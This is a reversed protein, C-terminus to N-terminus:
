GSIELQTQVGINEFANSIQLCKLLSGEFVRASGNNHITQATSEAQQSNQNCHRTLVSVVAEFSTTDNNFAVVSALNDFGTGQTTEDIVEPTEQPM